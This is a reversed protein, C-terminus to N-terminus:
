YRLRSEEEFLADSITDKTKRVSTVTATVMTEVETNVMSLLMIFSMQLHRLKELVSPSLQNFHGRM